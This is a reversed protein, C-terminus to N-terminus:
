ESHSLKRRSAHRLPRLPQLLSLHQLRTPNFLTLRNIQEAIALVAKNAAFEAYGGDDVSTPLVCERFQRQESMAQLLASADQEFLTEAVKTAIATM